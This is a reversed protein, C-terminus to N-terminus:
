RSGQEALTDGTTIPRAKWFYNHIGEATQIRRFTMEIRDGIAIKEPDVDALECLLRGGQDFDVVASVTPPNPSFALHDITFTSITGGANMMPVPEMSDITKCDICVRVAPLHITGCKQCRHAVFGYKYQENRLLPPAAPGSPNPRRPPERDLFGRWTLYTGYKLANNRAKVQTLLPLRSQYGDIAQTTQMFLATAGDGIGVIAITTDPTARDLVGALMVGPHACGSNGLADCFDEAVSSVGATAAFSRNARSNLGGVVLVDIDDSRLGSVELAGEFAAQALPLLASEGFREEWVRSAPAGPLRWRELIERTVSFQGILDAIVDPGDNFLFAAAGDGGEAEDRGGPLGTRIDSMVTLTATKSEAALLLAGLGARVGGVFDLALGRQDLGIAAHVISANTKELYPPCSTAMLLREVYHRDKVGLLARRGAEAAM